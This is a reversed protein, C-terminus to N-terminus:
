CLDRIHTLLQIAGLGCGINFQEFEDYELSVHNNTADLIQMLNGVNSWGLHTTNSLADTVAGPYFSSTYSTETSGFTNIDGVLIHRENYAHTTQNGLGDTITTTGDENYTLEVILEDNGNFQRVARGETDYDTTVITKGDPDIVSGLHHLYVSNYTYTWTQSIVNTAQYLDGNVPDYAFEVQRGTHDSVSDIRNHADYGITLYRTNTEDYVQALNGDLDYSYSM